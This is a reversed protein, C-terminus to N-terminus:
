ITFLVNEPRQILDKYEKERKRLEDFISLIWSFNEAGIFKETLITDTSNKPYIGIQSDDANIYRINLYLLIRQLDRLPLNKHTTNFIYFNM